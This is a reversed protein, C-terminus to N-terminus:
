GSPNFGPLTWYVHNLSRKNSENNLKYLSFKDSPQTPEKTETSTISSSIKLM